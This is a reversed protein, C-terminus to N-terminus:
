EIREISYPVSDKYYNKILIDAVLGFILLQVGLIALLMGLMLLPRNGIPVGLFLRVIALYLLIIFGAVGSLIGLGGFLHIPRTSYKQWFLVVFLDLAGKLIRSISYKTKGHKRPRHNVKVEGIRFGRWRLLAPIFRHMEGYLDLGKFCEKRYAKLSCGSDHITEGTFHKRIVNAIRSIVRKSFSDKRKQRWGSVVEYGEDIKGLLNPIDKPDNQLDADMAVIVNGNANKFGADMAATQGFNKRFKIIKVNSDKKKLDLLDQYTSDTSGDDIFIIEHKKTIGDVVPKLERYLISVNGKENYAPIIISLDM